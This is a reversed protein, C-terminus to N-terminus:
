KDSTKFLQSHKIISSPHLGFMSKFTRTFHSSDTFGAQHAAQTLSMGSSGMISAALLRQWLLYRRIPIGVEQKFLHALRSSSLNVVQALEDISAQKLPAQAIYHIIKEIRPETTQPMNTHALLNILGEIPHHITEEPSLLNNILARLAILTTIDIEFFGNDKQLQQILGKVASLEPDLLLLAQRGQLTNLSHEIDPGIIVGEYLGDKGGCFLKFPSELSISVQLAHHSHRNAQIEDGIILLSNVSKFILSKAYSPM